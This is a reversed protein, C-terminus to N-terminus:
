LMEEVRSRIIEFELPEFEVVSEGDDEDRSLYQLYCRVPIGYFGSLAHAYVSVQLEYEFELEPSIRVDTKYDHVEIHDGCHIIVDAVGHLTVDTGTIPCYLDMESCINYGKKSDLFRRIRGVAREPYKSVDADPNKQLLEALDHIMIGHEKGLGKGGTRISKKIDRVGVVRKTSRVDNIVPKEILREVSGEEMGSIEGLEDEQVELSKLFHCEAGVDYVFTLYQKARSIAVFMVRREEDDKTKKILSHDAVKRIIAKWSTCIRKNGNSEFMEKMCVLGSSPLLRFTPSYTNRSPITGEDMFPIIVIHNELGKVKHITMISVADSEISNEIFYTRGNRIDEEILGIVDTLSMMSADHEEKIRSMIANTVDNDLGYAEFISLILEDIRRSRDIFHRRLERIHDPVAYEISTKGNARSLESLSHGMDSLIPVIGNRDRENLIYKMWALLLVGERECMIAVDGFFYAPIKANLCADLIYSCQKNSKCIVYIDNYRVPRKIGDGGVITSTGNHRYDKIISITRDIEEEESGAAIKRVHAFEDTICTNAQEINVKAREIEEIPITESGSMPTRLARFATDIISSHSRYNKTLTVKEVKPPDIMVRREGDNLFEIFRAVKNEFELINHVDAFRFGYISQKWDGAVCFNPERITMLCTMMQVPNTDQFEDVILHRHSNKERVKPDMYLVLFAFLSVLGYTLQNTSICHRIYGLYVGHFFRLLEDRDEDVVSRIDSESLLVTINPCGNMVSRVGELEKTIQSRGGSSGYHNKEVIAEYLKEPDGMLTHECEYGFWGKPLPCIGKTMLSTIINHFDESCSCAIPSVNPYDCGHSEMFGDFFRSFDSDIITDNVMMRINRSLKVDKMGFIRGILETSDLIISNCISDFTRAQLESVAKNVADKKLDPDSLLNNTIEDRMDNASNNTFTVVMIDLPDVGSRILNCYRHAITYTKGTGPGSDAVLFGNINDIIEKQEKNPGIKSENVM